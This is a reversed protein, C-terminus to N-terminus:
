RSAMAGLAWVAGFMGALMLAVCLAKVPDIRAPRVKEPLAAAYPVPQAASEIAREQGIISFAMCICVVAALGAILLGPQVQVSVDILGGRDRAQNEIRHNVVLASILVYGPLGVMVLGYGPRPRHDTWFLALVTTLAAAGFPGGGDVRTGSVEIVWVSAWPMVAGLVM